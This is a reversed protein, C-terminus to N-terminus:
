QQKYLYSVDKINISKDGDIDCAFKLYENIDDDDYRLKGALFEQILVCDEDNSEGDLNLDKMSTPMKGGSLVFDVNENASLDELYGKDGKVIFLGATDFSGIIEINQNQLEQKLTASRENTVGMGNLFSNLKSILELTYQNDGSAKEIDVGNSFYFIGALTIIYPNTVDLGSYVASVSYTTNGNQASLKSYGNIISYGLKMGEDSIYSTDFASASFIASTSVIISILIALVKTTIKELKM